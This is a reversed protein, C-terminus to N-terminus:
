WRLEYQQGYADDGLRQRMDQAFAPTFDHRIFGRLYTKHFNNYENYLKYAYGRFDATSTIMTITADTNLIYKMIEIFHKDSFWAVEDMIIHDFSNLYDPLLLPVGVIERLLITPTSFDLRANHHIIGSASYYDGNHINHIDDLQFDGDDGSPVVTPHMKFSPTLYLTSEGKCLRERSVEMSVMRKGMQRFSLIANYKNNLIRTKLSQQYSYPQYPIMGNHPCKFYLEKM